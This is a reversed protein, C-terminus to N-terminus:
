QDAPMIRSVQRFFASKENTNLAVFKSTNTNQTVTNPRTTQAESLSEASLLLIVRVIRVLKKGSTRLDADQDSVEKMAEDVNVYLRASLRDMSPLLRAAPETAFVSAYERLHLGRGNTAASSGCRM